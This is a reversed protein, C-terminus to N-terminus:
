TSGISENLTDVKDNGLLMCPDHETIIPIHVTKGNIKGIKMIKLLLNLM